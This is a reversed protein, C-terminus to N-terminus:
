GAPVAFAEHHALTGAPPPGAFSLALVYRAPVGPMALRPDADFGFRGYYAPDGVLVVGRAGAARVRALGERVLAAGIGRGQRDPRVAIPGLALWGVDRGDVRVESFGVHGVVTGDEEAVLSLTLAGARRLREVIAAETGSAHPARAFADTTITGITGADSPTEPRIIM